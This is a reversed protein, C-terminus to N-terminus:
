FDPRYSVRVRIDQGYNGFEKGFLTLGGVHRAPDMVRFRFLLEDASTLSFRDISVSSLRVGDIFCGNHDIELTKMLGYQNWYPFWWAPTLLGHRDGFDGPSTWTGLETGNLLFSIDSPWNSNVGPAESGIEFSISIKEIRQGAPLLNPIRYEVFGKGIWLISASTHDPHAFYRPDDVEGILHEVTALGCTPLACYNCYSGVPLDVTYSDSDASAEKAVAVVIRDLDVRCVKQNGHGTHETLITVIGCEELKRVHSTLAGNTIGLRLALDNMNMEGNELLIRILRIRLKSGLAKFLPVAEELSNITLM